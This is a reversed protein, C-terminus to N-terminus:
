GAVLRDVHDGFVGDMGLRAMRAIADPEQADWALVSLGAARFTAVMDATWESHHLNVGDLGAAAVRRAREAPGGQMYGVYTSDVLRVDSAAGRVEALLRWRHHCLWLRDSAGADRAVTVVAAVLGGIHEPEKLDLSLEFDTGCADYLDVLAPVHAPLDAREVAAIPRGDQLEGDHDLVPVGDATLWVDSELGDAGMALAGVFADLTNEPAHARGGRHAFRIM